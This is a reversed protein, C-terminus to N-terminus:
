RERGRILVRDLATGGVSDFTAQNIDFEEAYTTVRTAAELEQAAFFAFSVIVVVEGSVIAGFAENTEDDRAHTGSAAPRVVIGTTEVQLDAGENTPEITPDFPRGTEPDLITGEPYERDLPILFVLPTGVEERFGAIAEAFAALNPRQM